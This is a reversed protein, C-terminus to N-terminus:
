GAFLGSTSVAGRGGEWSRGEGRVSALEGGGGRERKKCELAEGGRVMVQGM